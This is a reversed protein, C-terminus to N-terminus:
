TNYIVPMNGEWTNWLTDDLVLSVMFHSVNIRSTKGANFIPSRTPSKMVEYSSVYDANILTDPRVAIWKLLSHNVGIEKTLFDATKVNDKQPPLLLKLMSYIVKESFTNTEKNTTNTYGTTSMLILKFPSQSARKKALYISQIANFVLNRPKGFLGKFSINHGLCSIVIDCDRTLMDVKTPAMQHINDRIVEILPHNITELPVNATPRVLIRTKINKNILEQVVLKGTKGSAGLVLVRM